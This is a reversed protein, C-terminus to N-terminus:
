WRQKPELEAISVDGSSFQAEEGNYWNSQKLGSPLLIDKVMVDGGQWICDYSASDACCPSLWMLEDNEGDIKEGL